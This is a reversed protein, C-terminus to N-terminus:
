RRRGTVTSYGVQKQEKGYEQLTDVLRCIKEKYETEAFTLLTESLALRKEPILLDGYIRRAPDAETDGTKMYEAYRFMDMEKLLGAAEWAATELGGAKKRKPIYEMEGLADILERGKRKQVNDPLQSVKHCLYCNLTYRLSGSDIVTEMDPIPIGPPLDGHFRDIYEAVLHNERMFGRIKEALGHLEEQSYILNKRKEPEPATERVVKESDQWLAMFDPINCELEWELINRTIGEDQCYLVYTEIEDRNQQLYEPAKESLEEWIMGNTLMSVYEIQFGEKLYQFFCVSVESFAAADHADTHLRGKRFFLIEDDCCALAIIDKKGDPQQKQMLFEFNFDNWQGQYLQIHCERIFRIYDRNNEQIPFSGGDFGRGSEMYEPILPVHPVEIEQMRKGNWLVMADPTYDVEDLISEQTIENEACYALFMQAGERNIIGKATLASTLELWIYRCGELSLYEIQYGNELYDFIHNSCQLIDWEAPFAMESGSRFYILKEAEDDAVIILIDQHNKKNPDELIIWFDYYDWGIEKLHAHCKTEFGIFGNNM